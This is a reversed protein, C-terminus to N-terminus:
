KMGEGTKRVKEGAKERRWERIRVPCPSFLRPFLSPPRSPQEKLELTFGPLPESESLSGLSFLFSLRRHRHGGPIRYRRGQRLFIGLEGSKRLFDLRWARTELSTRGRELRRSAVNVRTGTEFTSISFFLCVACAIFAIFAHPFDKM